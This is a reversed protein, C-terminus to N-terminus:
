ATLKKQRGTTHFSEIKCEPNTRQFYSMDMNEFSPDEKTSTHIQKDLSQSGLAYLSQHAHTSVDINNALMLGLHNANTQLNEFLLEMLLQKAHFFSLLVVLLTKDIKRWCTKMQRRSIPPLTKYLYIQSALHQDPKTFYLWIEVYRNNLMTTTNQKLLNVAVFYVTSPTM